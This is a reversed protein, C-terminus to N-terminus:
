GGPSWKLFIKTQCFIIQSYIKNVNENLTYIKWLTNLSFVDKRKKSLCISRNWCIQRHKPGLATTLLFFVIVECKVTDFPKISFWVPVQRIKVKKEKKRKCM